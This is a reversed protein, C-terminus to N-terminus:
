SKRLVERARAHRSRAAKQLWELAELKSAKIGDGDRYCLYSVPPMTPARIM